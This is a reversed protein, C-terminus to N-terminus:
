QQAAAAAATQSQHNNHSQKELEDNINIEQTLEGLIPTTDDETTSSQQERQMREHKKRDMENLMQVSEDLREMERKDDDSYEEKSDSAYLAEYANRDSDGGDSGGFCAEQSQIRDRM